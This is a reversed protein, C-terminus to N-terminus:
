PIYRVIVIGSGGTGGTQSLGKSAGAGGGTNATGNRNSDVGATATASAGGGTGGAGLTGNGASRHGAGGGGGARTVSSGTISSAVGDGGAKTVYNYGVESAGGGGGGGYDNGSAVGDGGDYGQNATGSGGTLYTIGAGGGGSGGGADDPQVVNYSRAGGGGVSTITAFVSDNGQSAVGGDAGGAGGAGVTVTYSGKGLTLATEASGGGGSSEGSVSSRYGGAGGGGGVDRGSAGGGGAIVLFEIDGSGSTIEFTGSSTFTHITYDGSTTITGGTATLVASLNVWAGGRYEETADLTTNYRIMGNAPSSPRQATTGNPVRLADTKSGVDLSVAPSPTGIGVKGDGGWVMIDNTWYSDLTLENGTSGSGAFNGNFSFSQDNGNESFTLLDIDDSAAGKITLNGQPTAGGIAVNGSADIRMREADNTAFVMDTNEQNYLYAQETSSVGVLFGDGGATGTTTNTFQQFAAGSSATHLHLPRDTNTVSTGIGVRGSRDIRMVEAITSSGSPTTGFTLNTPNSGASHSGAIAGIYAHATDVNGTNDKGGFELYGLPNGSITTDDRSIRLASNSSPGINDFRLSAVGGGEIHLISDPSDTGIGVRNNSADVVLTSTDVTLGDMTATGTVDIGSSKTALKNSGYHKLIVEGSSGKAHLYSTFGGSGDDSQLYIDKDDSLNRLILAGNNSLIYNNSGGDSYIELDSGAGFIAKDNDGFNLDGTLTGGALPLKTAISNTVTTSFNADDGLAAALENLTNLADPSSDVLASIEQQVFATTAPATTNTGTSATTLTIQDPTIVGDAILKVKTAM